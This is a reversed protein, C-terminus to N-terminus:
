LSDKLYKDLRNVWYVFQQGYYKKIYVLDEFTIKEGADNLAWIRKLEANVESRGPSPENM